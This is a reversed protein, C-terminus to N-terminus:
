VPRRGPRCAGRSRPMAAQAGTSDLRPPRAIVARGPVRRRFASWGAMASAARRGPPPRAQRRESRSPKRGRRRHWWRREGDRPKIRGLAPRGEVRQDGVDGVDGRRLRQRAEVGVRHPQRPREPRPRERQHQGPSGSARDRSSAVAPSSLMATRTGRWATACSMRAANPLGTTAGDALREPWTEGVVAACTSASRRPRMSRMTSPPGVGTPTSDVCRRRGRRAPGAAAPRGAARPLRARRPAAAPRDEAPSRSRFQRGARARCAPRASRAACAAAARRGAADLGAFRQEGESWAKGIAGCRAVHLDEVQRRAAVQDLRGGIQERMQPREIGRARARDRYHRNGRSPRPSAM